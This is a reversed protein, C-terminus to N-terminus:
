AFVASIDAKHTSYAPTQALVDLYWWWHSSPPQLRQRELALDTFRSLAEWFEGVQMFLRQDAEALMQKEESTLSAEIRALKSRNHLMQLHEIGSVNPYRTDTAYDQVLKNM